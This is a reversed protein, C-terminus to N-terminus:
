RRKGSQALKESAFLAFRKGAVFDRSREERRVFDCM